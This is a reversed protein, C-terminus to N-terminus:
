PYWIRWVLLNPAIHNAWLHELAADGPTGQVGREVRARRGAAFATCDALQIVWNTESRVFHITDVIHDIPIPNWGWGTGFVQYNALDELAIDERERNEDAVVLVRIMTQDQHGQFRAFREIEELTFMLAIDHPHFPDPYRAALRPKDVGRVIVRLGHLQIVGLIQDYLAIRDEATWTSFYGNRGFIDAGHFEFDPNAAAAGFHQQAIMRLDTHVGLIREEPILLTVILHQPQDVDALNRGTNGAEDMCALWM